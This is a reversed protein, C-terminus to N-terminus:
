RNGKNATVAEVRKLRQRSVPMARNIEAPIQAQQSPSVAQKAKKINSSRKAGVGLIAGVIPSCGIVVIAWVFAHGDDAQFEWWALFLGCLAVFRGITM